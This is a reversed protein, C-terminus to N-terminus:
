PAHTAEAEAVQVTAKHYYEAYMRLVYDLNESDLSDGMLLEPAESVRPLAVDTLAADTLLADRKDMAADYAAAEGTVLSRLASGGTMNQPGYSLSGEPHYAMCGMLLFVAIIALTIAKLRNETQRGGGAPLGGPATEPSVKAIACTSCPAGAPM